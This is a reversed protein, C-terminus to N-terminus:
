SSAAVEFSYWNGYESLTGDPKVAYVTLLVWGSTTPTWTVTARGNADAAIETLEEGDVFSYRYAVTDTWGPPPSFTFTGAVGVGGVPSGDPPQVYVDSKVGPGPYFYTSWSAETSVFGNDSNSRVRVSHGHPNGAIFSFHATGDEAAQRTERDGNDLVIEYERVGTVGAAPAFKLVVEQGWQPDGNEVRVDPASWPIMTKYVTEASINGALDLSRVTLQQPGAGTPNLTVTASGGPVDARVTNPLSFPDRCVLQGLDGTAACTNVGLGNWSYQFGAVDKSGGGSFTFVGPVGAPAQQGTDTAPYNASAVTPATPSTDDYTFFCKKSWASFDAGDGVRAQWAYSKGDVLTGAPLNATHVRGSIAHQSTFVQRAAADGTPWIAFESTLRYEDDPDADTGLAQLVNAFGALRPYPRFQTCPFGGNYLHANDGKPVSNYQTTLGVSRYWNLRRGYAPDSENAEPVRIEFTIRRQKRAVADQVAAGVDFSLTAKPCWEPTLVEDLKTLPEPASNWTPTTSVPKTRWIEIARKGCDAASYEEIFVTGGYIKRGEYASLDFTAYVRSTHSVGADDVSTGLPMHTEDNWGYAKRPTASDTWGIQISPASEYHPAAVAPSGTAVLAIGSVGLTLALAGILGRRPWTVIVTSPGGRIWGPDDPRFTTSM